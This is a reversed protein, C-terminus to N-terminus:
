KQADREKGEETEALKAEVDQAWQDRAPAGADAQGGPKDNRKARSLFARSPEWSPRVIRVADRAARNMADLAKGGALYAVMGFGILPLFIVYLLGLIPAAAILAIVPVRRYRDEAGGPLPGEHEISKFSLSKAHFFLGPEVHENGNYIRM